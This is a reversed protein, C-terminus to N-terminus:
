HFHSVYISHRGCAQCLRLVNQINNWKISDETAGTILPPCWQLSYYDTEMTQSNRKWTITGHCVLVSSAWAIYICSLLTLVASSTLFIIFAFYAQAIASSLSLVCQLSSWSESLFVILDVSLLPHPYFFPCCSGERERKICFELLTRALPSLLGPVGQPLVDARWVTLPLSTRSVATAASHLVTSPVHYSSLVSGPDSSQGTM